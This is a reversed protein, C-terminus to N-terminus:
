VGYKIGEEAWGGVTGCGMGGRWVGAEVEIDGHGMGGSRTTLREFSSKGFIILNQTFSIYM